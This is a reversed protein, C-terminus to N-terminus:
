RCVLPWGNGPYIYCIRVDELQWGTDPNRKLIWVELRTVDKKNRNKSFRKTNSRDAVGQAFFRKGPADASHGEEVISLERGPLKNIM